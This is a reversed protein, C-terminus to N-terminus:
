EGDWLQGPDNDAEWNTVTRWSVIRLDDARLQIVLAARDSTITKQLLGSTTQEDSLAALPAGSAAARHADRVFAQGEAERAYQERVTDAYTEALRLDAQATSLTLISLMAMSVTIVTLVLSIPGLRIPIHKM